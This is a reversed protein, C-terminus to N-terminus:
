HNSVRPSTNPEHCLVAYSIPVALYHDRLRPSVDVQLPAGALNILYDILFALELSLSVILPLLWALHIPPASGARIMQDGPASNSRSSSSIGLIGEFLAMGSKPTM